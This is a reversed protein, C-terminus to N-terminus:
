LHWHAYKNHRLADKYGSSTTTVLTQGQQGPILPGEGKVNDNRAQPYRSPSTWLTPSSTLRRCSGKLHFDAEVCATTPLASSLMGYYAFLESNRGRVPEWLDIFSLGNLAEVEAQLAPKKNAATGSSAWEADRAASAGDHLSPHAPCFDWLYAAPLSHHV